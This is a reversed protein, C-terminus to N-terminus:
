FIRPPVRARYEDDVKDLDRRLDADLKRLMTDALEVTDNVLSVVDEPALVACTGSLASELLRRALEGRKAHHELVGSRKLELLMKDTASLRDKWNVEDFAENFRKMGALLDGFDEPTTAKPAKRKKPEKELEEPTITGGM